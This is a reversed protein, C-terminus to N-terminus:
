REIQQKTQREPRRAAPQSRASTGHPATDHSSARTGARRVRPVCRHLRPGRVAARPSLRVLTPAAAVAARRWPPAGSACRSRTARLPPQASAAAEHPRLARLCQRLPGQWPARRRQRRQSPLLRAESPAPWLLARPLTRASPPPWRSTRPPCTEHSARPAELGVRRRTGRARSQRRRMQREGRPSRADSM